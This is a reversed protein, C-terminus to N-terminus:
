ITGDDCYIEDTATGDVCRWTGCACAGMCACTPKSGCEPPIKVCWTAGRKMPGGIEVACIAGDDCGGDAASCAADAVLADGISCTPADADADVGADFGAGCPYLGLGAQWTGDTCFLEGRFGSPSCPLFCAPDSANCPAGVCAESCCHDISPVDPSAACVAISCGLADGGGGTDRADVPADVADGAESGGCGAIVVVAAVIVADVFHARAISM